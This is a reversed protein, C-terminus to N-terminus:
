ETKSPRLHYEKQNESLRACCIASRSAGAGLPICVFQQEPIPQLSLSAKYIKVNFVNFMPNLADVDGKLTLTGASFMIQIYPTHWM